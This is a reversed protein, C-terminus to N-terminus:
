STSASRGGEGHAFGNGGEIGVLGTTRVAARPTTEGGMDDFSTEVGDVENSAGVALDLAHCIFKRVDSGFAVGCATLKIFQADGEVAEVGSGDEWRLERWLPHLADFRLVLKNLAEGEVVLICLFLSLVGCVGAGNIGFAKVVQKLALAVNGSVNLELKVGGHSLVCGVGGVEAFEAGLVEAEEALEGGGDFLRLLSAAEGVLALGLEGVHGSLEVGGTGLLDGGLLGFEGEAADVAVELLLKENEAGLREPRDRGSWGLRGAGARGRNGASGTTTM